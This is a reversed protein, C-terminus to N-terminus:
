SFRWETAVHPYRGAVDADVVKVPQLPDGTKVVAIEREDEEVIQEGVRNAHEVSCLMTRKPSLPESMM